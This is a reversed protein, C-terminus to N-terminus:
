RFAPGRAPHFRRASPLCSEEGDPGAVSGDPKAAGLRTERRAAHDTNSFIREQDGAACAGLFEARPTMPLTQVNARERTRANASRAREVRHRLPARALRGSHSSPILPAGPIAFDGSAM